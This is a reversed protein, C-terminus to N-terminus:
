QFKPNIAILQQMTEEGIRRGLEQGAENASQTLAPLKKAFTQYAPQELLANVAVIEELTFHKRYQEIALPIMETRFRQVLQERFDAVLQNVDERTVNKGESRMGQYIQQGMVPAQSTMLEEMVVVMPEISNSLDLLRRAEDEFQDATASSSFFVSALFLKAVLRM